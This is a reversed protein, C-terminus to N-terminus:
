AASRHSHVGLGPVGFVNHIRELGDAIGFRRDLAVLKWYVSSRKLPRPWLRRILPQQVGFRPFVLVLRHGLAM